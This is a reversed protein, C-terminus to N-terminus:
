GPLQIPRTRAEVHSAEAIFTQGTILDSDDSALFVAFAAVQEPRAIGRKGGYGLIAQKQEDTLKSTMATDVFSPAVANVQINRSSLEKALSRTLGMVAAKSAAYNTQGANGHVGVISTMNVIKGRRQWVMIRSAARSYNFVSKLNNEMVWDWDAESMRVILGDRTIGANNVLIDLRGFDRAVQEVTHAAAAMSAADSQYARAEHGAATLEAVFAASTDASTRYTFAVRAGAKAFAEVIARGIGRAGGTVLAVRDKLTIM